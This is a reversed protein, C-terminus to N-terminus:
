TVPPASAATVEIALVRLCVNCGQDDGAMGTSRHGSSASRDRVGAIEAARARDAALPAPTLLVSTVRSDPRPVNTAGQPRAVRASPQSRVNAAQPQPGAWATAQTPSRCVAAQAHLAGGRTPRRRAIQTADQMPQSRLDTAAGRGARRCGHSECWPPSSAAVGLLPRRHPVGIARPCCAQAMPQPPLLSALALATGRGGAPAMDQGATPNEWAAAGTCASGAALVTGRSTSAATPDHQWCSTGACHGGPLQHSCGTGPPPPRGAMRQAASPEPTCPASSSWRLCVSTTGAGPQHAATAAPVGRHHTKPGISAAAQRRM